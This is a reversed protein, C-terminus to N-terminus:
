AVLRSTFIAKWAWVYLSLFVDNSWGARLISPLEFREKEMKWGLVVLMICHMRHYLPKCLNLVM